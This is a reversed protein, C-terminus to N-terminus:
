LETRHVTMPTVCIFCCRYCTMIGQIRKAIQVVRNSQCVLLAVFPFASAKLQASLGYAEPDWIKGAWTVVNENALAVVAPAGLVQRCFKSTDEHMPSHLYVLLFKSQQFANAVAAQYSSNQFVPHNSGFHRDYDDIFRATDATPNMSTPRTQFLWRLPLFALELISNQNGGSNSNTSSTQVQGGSNSSSGRNARIRPQNVNDNNGNGSQDQVFQNVALDLNWSNQLLIQICLGDDSIQAIDQFTQLTEEQAPTLLGRSESM